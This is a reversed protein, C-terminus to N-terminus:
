FDVIVAALVFRQLAAAADFAADFGEVGSDLSDPTEGHACSEVAAAFREGAHLSQLFRHEGESLRHFKLQGANRVLLVDDSGSRLDIWEPEEESAMNAEWIRVCPFESAFLRASPHLQFRLDDYDAPAVQTLKALELPAHDAALLAEQILWELRAVEGLYRYEDDIHLQSLYEAFRAGAPQLDGSLSPHRRHFGRATQLFYDEGVLRRIAPFSSLLSDIFNTRANNAYISLAHQSPIRQADILPAARSPEGDLLAHMVDLQLERLSPM